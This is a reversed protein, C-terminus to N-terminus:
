RFVSARCEHSLRQELEHGHSCALVNPIDLIVISSEQADRLLTEFAASESSQEQPGNVSSHPPRIFNAALAYLFYDGLRQWATCAILVSVHLTPSAM